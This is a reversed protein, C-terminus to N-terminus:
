PLAKNLALAKGISIGSSGTATAWKVGAAQASDATLVTDNAGVAVRVAADAGTAAVIDGKADWIVDTAVAGAGGAGGMLAMWATLASNYILIAFDHDDDLTIDANGVCQVNGTGHKIVVTRADHVAHLILFRNATTGNITDLDDSAAAAETDVRHHSQTITIAGTAITLDTPAPLHYFLPQLTQGAAAASHDHAYTLTSLTHAHSDDVVAPGPYSGSLDGSASGTPPLGTPECDEWAAGTDRQWKSNTTDYFLRGPKSAAPRNAAIDRLILAEFATSM